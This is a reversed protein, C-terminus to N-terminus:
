FKFFLYTNNNLFCYHFIQNTLFLSLSVAFGLSTGQTVAHATVQLCLVTCHTEPAIIPLQLRDKHFTWLDCTATPIKPQCIFCCAPYGRCERLLAAIMAVWLSGKLFNGPVPNSGVCPDCFM